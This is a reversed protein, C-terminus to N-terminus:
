DVEELFLTDCDTDMRWLNFRLCVIRFRREKRGLCTLAACWPCRTWGLLAQPRCATVSGVCLLMPGPPQFPDRCM